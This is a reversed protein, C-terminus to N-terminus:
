IKGKLSPVMEESERFLQSSQVSLFLALSFSSVGNETVSENWRWWQQWQEKRKRNTGCRYTDTVRYFLSFLLLSAWKLSMSSCHNLKVCVHRANLQSRFRFDEVEVALCPVVDNKKKITFITSLFLSQIYTPNTM